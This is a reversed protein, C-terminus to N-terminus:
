DPSRRIAPCSPYRCLLPSTASTTPCSDSSHPCPCPGPISPAPSFANRPSVPSAPSAEAIAAFSPPRVLSPAGRWHVRPLVWPALKRGGVWRLSGRLIPCGGLRDILSIAINRWNLLTGVLQGNPNSGTQRGYARLKPRSGSARKQVSAPHPHSRRNRWSLRILAVFAPRLRDRGIRNSVTTNDDGRMEPLAIRLRGVARGLFIVARACSWKTLRRSSSEPAAAVRAQEKM